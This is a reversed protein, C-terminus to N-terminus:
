KTTGKGDLTKRIDKEAKELMKVSRVGQLPAAYRAALGKKVRLFEVIVSRINTILQECENTMKGAGLVKRALEYCEEARQITDPLGRAFDDDAMDVLNRTMALIVYRRWVGPRRFAIAVPDFPTDYSPDEDLP